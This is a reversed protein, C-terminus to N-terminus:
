RPAYRLRTAYRSPTWTTPPEFGRAGVLLILPNCIETQLGKEIKPERTRVTDSFDQVRPTKDRKTSSSM